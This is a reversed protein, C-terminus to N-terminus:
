QHAAEGALRRNDGATCAANALPDNAQIDFLTSASDDGIDVYFCALLESCLEGGVRDEDASIDRALGIDRGGDFCGDQFETSEVDHHVVGTDDADDTM